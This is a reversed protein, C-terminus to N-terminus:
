HRASYVTQLSKEVISMLASRQRFGEIGRDVTSVSVAKAGCTHLEYHGGVLEIAL